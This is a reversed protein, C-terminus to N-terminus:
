ESDKKDDTFSFTKKEEAEEETLIVYKSRIEKKSSENLNSFVKRSSEVLKKIEEYSNM